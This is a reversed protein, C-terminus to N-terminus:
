KRSLVTLRSVSPDDALLKLLESGVLGTAGLLLVRRM